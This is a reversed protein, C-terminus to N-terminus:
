VSLVGPKQKIMKKAVCIAIVWLLVHHCAFLNNSKWKGLLLNLIKM